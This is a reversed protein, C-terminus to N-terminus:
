NIYYYRHPVKDFAKELDTYIVDIQGGEELKLTWEDLMKLFQIVVSRGHIFGYQRDSLLNNSTFHVMVSDRIISEFIKCVVSTISIPRYNEVAKKNGKKHIATIDARRWDEPLVGLNLSQEFIKTLPYSIKSALEKLM